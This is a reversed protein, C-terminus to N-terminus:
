KLGSQLGLAEACARFAEPVPAEYVVKMGDPHTLRLVQAHLMLREASRAGTGYLHDGLIPAGAASLHIRIQHMRGTAPQLEFLARDGHRALIRWDTRADMSGAKEPRTVIMRPRGGEEVRMLPQEFVGMEATPLKGGAIALYTKKARREGFEASLHAAAPKTRGVIVLGSTGRDLRHVLRPKKGNSKAFAVLLDDLSRSVGGGGQTALGSPKDFVIASADEHLVLSRAYAVDEPSIAPLPRNRM